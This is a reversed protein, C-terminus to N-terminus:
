VGRVLAQQGFAKAIGAMVVIGLGIEIGGQRLAHGVPDDRSPFRFARQIAGAAAPPPPRIRRDRRHTLIKGVGRRAIAPCVGDRCAPM